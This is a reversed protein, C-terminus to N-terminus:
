FPSLSYSLTQCPLCVKDERTSKLTEGLVVVFPRKPVDISNALCLVEKRVLPGPYSRPVFKTIGQLVTLITLACEHQM